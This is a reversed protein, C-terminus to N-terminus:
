YNNNKKYIIAYIMDIVIKGIDSFHAAPNLLLFKLCGLGITNGPIVFIRGDSCNIKLAELFSAVIILPSAIQEKEQENVITNINEKVESDDKKKLSELFATVGKKEELKEKEKLAPDNEYKEVYGKLKHVLKTKQIFKVVEFINVTDIEAAIEFDELCYLKTSVNKPKDDPHSKSNGGFLKLLKKLCFSLQSLLLVNKATM